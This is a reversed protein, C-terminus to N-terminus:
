DIWELHVGFDMEGVRVFGEIFNSKPPLLCTAFATFACPPNYAKNFDIVTRGLSDGRSVYLYRGGPYTEIDTTLDNFILFLKDEGGDLATLSITVGERSGIVKGAVPYEISQGVANDMIVTEGEEPALVIAEIKWSPDTSYHPIETLESRLHFMTDWVRVGYLDSRKIITWYLSGLHFVDAQGDGDTRIRGSQFESGDLLRVDVGQDVLLEVSDGDVTWVGISEPASTSLKIDLNSGSGFTNDGEELWTLGVLSTWSRPQTLASLRNTRWIDIENTYEQDDSNSTDGDSKPQCAALGLCAFM